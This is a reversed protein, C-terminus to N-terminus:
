ALEIKDGQKPAVADYGLDTLESAFKEAREKDGHICVVKEPNTKKVLEFLESRGAHASFDLYEVPLEIDLINGEIRLQGKNQLLWGNTGEVCYGTFIIKSDRNLYKIYNLAPGGEMMGATSIIVNGGMTANRKDEISEVFTISEVDNIFDDYEHLYRKYKVYTRTIEKAMGDLYIPVDKHHARVIRIIEQSRGLAFSPCLVTGGINITEYIEDALKAELKNRNPHERDAYTSEIILADLKEKVHKAGEHLRTSETKFDGTYLIHKGNYEAKVMAAGVIHGADRFMFNTKGMSIKHNYMLPQWHSLAKKYHANTWPLDNAQIKMTDKWLINVLDYTPPTAYWEIKSSKYIAPVYGSHDLHAHSIIAADLYINEVGLPYSPKGAEDFIKVGYDLLVRRDTQLVFASRGVEGSAGLCYLKVSM